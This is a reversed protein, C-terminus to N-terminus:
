EPQSLAHRKANRTFLVTGAVYDFVFAILGFGPRLQPLWSILAFAGFFAILLAALAIGDEHKAHGSIFRILVMPLHLLLLYGLAILSLTSIMFKLTHLILQPM